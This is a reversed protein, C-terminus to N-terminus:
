VLKIHDNTKASIKHNAVQIESSPSNKSRCSYYLHNDAIKPIKSAGRNSCYDNLSLFHQLWLVIM